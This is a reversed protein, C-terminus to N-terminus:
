HCAPNRVEAQQEVLSLSRGNYYDDGGNAYDDDRNVDDNAALYADDFFDDQNNAGQNYNEGGYENDQQAQENIFDDDYWNNQKKNFTGSAEASCTQCKLFPVRFSVSSSVVDDGVQYGNKMHERSSQQDNYPQSCQSDTYVHLQLKTSTFTEREMCGIKAYLPMNAYTTADIQVCQLSCILLVLSSMGVMSVNLFAADEPLEFDQGLTLAQYNFYARMYHAISVVFTSIEAFHCQYSQASDFLQFKIM